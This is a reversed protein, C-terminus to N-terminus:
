FIKNPPVRKALSKIFQCCTTFNTEFLNKILINGMQNSIDDINNRHQFSNPVLTSM